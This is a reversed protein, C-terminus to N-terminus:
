TRKLTVILEREFPVAFVETAVGRRRGSPTRSVCRRYDSENRERRHGVQALPVSVVLLLTQLGYRLQLERAQPVPVLDTRKGL